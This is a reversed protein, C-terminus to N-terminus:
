IKCTLFRLMLRCVQLPQLWSTLYRLSIIKQETMVIV